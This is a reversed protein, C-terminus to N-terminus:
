TASDNKCFCSLVLGAGIGQLVGAAFWAGALAAPIPMWIYGSAHVLGLIIGIHTGFCIGRGRHCKKADDPKGTSCTSAEYNRYKGFMCTLVGALLLHYLICLPLMGKMDAEPRWLAATQRYMDMLLVGHVLWDYVFLFAFVAIVSIVCKKTSCNKMDKM